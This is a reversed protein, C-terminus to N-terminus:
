RGLRAREMGEDVAEREREVAEALIRLDGGLEREAVLLGALSLDATAAELEEQARRLLYLALNPCNM